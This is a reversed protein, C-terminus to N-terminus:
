RGWIHNTETLLSSWALYCTKRIKQRNTYTLKGLLQILKM